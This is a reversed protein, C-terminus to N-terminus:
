WRGATSGGDVALVVGTVFRADALYLVADVIDVTEGIHGMPQAGALDDYHDRPGLLPTKVLGCAVANVRIREPALELALSRTLANVASKVALPM